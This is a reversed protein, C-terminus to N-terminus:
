VFTKNIHLNTSCVLLLIWNYCASILKMIKLVLITSFLLLNETNLFNNLLPQKLLSLLMRSFLCICLSTAPWVSVFVFKHSLLACM